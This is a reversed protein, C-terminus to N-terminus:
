IETNRYFSNQVNESNKVHKEEIKVYAASCTKIGTRCDQDATVSEKSGDATM